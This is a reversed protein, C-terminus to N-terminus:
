LKGVLFKVDQKKVYSHISHLCFLSPVYFEARITNLWYSKSLSTDFPRLALFSLLITSYSVPFVEAWFSLPSRKLTPTAKEM